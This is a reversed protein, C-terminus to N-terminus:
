LLGRQQAAARGQWATRRQQQQLGAEFLYYQQRQLRLMRGM